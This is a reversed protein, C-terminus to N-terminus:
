LRRRIPPSWGERRRSAEGRRPRLLGLLGGLGLLQELAYLALRLLSYLLLFLVGFRLLDFDRLSTVAMYWFQKLSGLEERPVDVGMGTLWDRVLPSLYATGKAALFLSLLVALSQWVFFFLRKASGSAGKRSGSLCSVLLILVAMLAVPEPKMLSQVWTQM